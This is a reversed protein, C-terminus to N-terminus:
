HIIGAAACAVATLYGAIAVGLAFRWYRRQSLGNEILWASLGALAVVGLLLLALM